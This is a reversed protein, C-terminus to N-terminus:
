KSFLILFVVYYFMELMLIYTNISNKENEELDVKGFLKSQLMISFHAGSFCSLIFFTWTLSDGSDNM